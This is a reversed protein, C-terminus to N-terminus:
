VRIIEPATTLTKRALAIQGVAKRVGVGAELRVKKQEMGYVALV